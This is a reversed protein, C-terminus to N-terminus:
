NIHTCAFSLIVSVRLGIIREDDMMVGALGFTDKTTVEYYPLSSEVHELWIEGKPIVGVEAVIRRTVAKSIVAHYDEPFLPPRKVFLPNFDLIRISGERPSRSHILQVLRHGFAQARWKANTFPILMCRSIARWVPFVIDPGWTKAPMMPYSEWPEILPDGLADQSSSIFSMLARRHTVILLDITRSGQTLSATFQVIGDEQDPVFLKKPRPLATPSEHFISPEPTPQSQCTITIYKYGTLPNLAPLKLACLHHIAPGRDPTGAPPTPRFLFINITETRACPIVFTDHSIFTFSDYRSGPM